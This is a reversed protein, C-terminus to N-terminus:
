ALASFRQDQGPAEGYGEYSSAAPAQKQSSESPQSQPWSPQPQQQGQGQPQTDARLAVSLQQVQLGQQELGQKFQRLDAAIVDRVEISSAMLRASLKGNEVSLVVDLVGLSEPKLRIRLRGDETELSRLADVTQKLVSERTSYDRLTQHILRSLTDQPQALQVVAARVSSGAEFSPTFVEFRSAFSDASDRALLSAQPRANPEESETTPALDDAVQQSVAQAVPTSSRSDPVSPITSQAPVQPELARSPAGRLEGRANLVTETGEVSVAEVEAPLFEVGEFVPSPLSAAKPSLSAQPAAEQSSTVSLAPASSGKPTSPTVSTTPNNASSQVSLAPEASDGDVLTGPAASTASVSPKSDSVPAGKPSVQTPSSSAPTAPAQIRSGSVLPAFQASPSSPTNQAQSVPVSEVDSMLSGSTATVQLAPKASANQGALPSVRSDGGQVVDQTRTSVLTPAQSTATQLLPAVTGAIVYADAMSDPRRREDHAYVPEPESALTPSTVPTGGQPGPNAEPRARNPTVQSAPVASQPEQSVESNVRAIVLTVLSKLQETEQADLSLAQAVQDVQEPSPPSLPQPYEGGGSSVRVAAELVSQFAAEVKPSLTGVSPKAESSNKAPAAQQTMELLLLDFRAANQSSNPQSVGVNQWASLLAGITNTQQTMIM